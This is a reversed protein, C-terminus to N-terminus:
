PHTGLDCVGLPLNPADLLSKPFTSWNGNVKARCRSRGLLLLLSM